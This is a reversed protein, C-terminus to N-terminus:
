FTMLHRGLLHETLWHRRGAPLVYLLQHNVLSASSGPILLLRVHPWHWSRVIVLLVDTGLTLLHCITIIHLSVVFVYINKNAFCGEDDLVSTVTMTTPWALSFMCCQWFSSCSRPSKSYATYSRIPLVFIANRHQLCSLVRGRHRDATQPMLLHTHVYEGSWTLCWENEGTISLTELPKWWGGSFAWHRINEQLRLLDGSANYRSLVNSSYISGQSPLLLSVADTGIRWIVTMLSTEYM